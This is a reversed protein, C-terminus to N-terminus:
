RPVAGSILWLVNAEAAGLTATEKWNLQAYGSYQEGTDGSVPTAYRNTTQM